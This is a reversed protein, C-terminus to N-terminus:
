LNSLTATMSGAATYKEMYATMFALLSVTSPHFQSCRLIIGELSLPRIKLDILALFFLSLVEM